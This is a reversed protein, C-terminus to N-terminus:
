RAYITLSDILIITHEIDSIVQARNAADLVQFMRIADTSNSYALIMAGSCPIELVQTPHIGTDIAAGGILRALSENATLRRAGAPTGEPREDQTMTRMGKQTRNLSCVDHTSVYIM